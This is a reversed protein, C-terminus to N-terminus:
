HDKFAMVGAKIEIEINNEKPPIPCSYKHNYACYPNYAKNFDIVISDGEPIELGIFRGGAYSEYGNTLDTFPLFLYNKFADKERLSHSQYINLVFPKGDIKFHAEGFKEYIPKRGTTTQMEFPLTNATRIFKAVVRYKEDIPYFQLGKFRRLDNKMLPSEAPDSFEKDLERRFDRIEELYNEDPSQAHLPISLFLWLYTLIFTKKMKSLM